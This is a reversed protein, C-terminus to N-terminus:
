SRGRAQAATHTAWLSQAQEHCDYGGGLANRRHRLRPEHIPPLKRRWTRLIGMGQESPPQSISWAKGTHRSRRERRHLTLTIPSGALELPLARSSHRSWRRRGMSPNGHRRCDFNGGFTTATYLNTHLIRGNLGGHVYLRGQM